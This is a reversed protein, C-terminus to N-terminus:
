FWNSLHKSLVQLLYFKNNMEVKLQHEVTCVYPICNDEDYCM